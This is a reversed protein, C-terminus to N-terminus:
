NGKQTIINQLVTRLEEINYPKSVVGSFGYKRYNSMIPDTSYGSSVITKAEPDIKLLKTVAEKGGMGGPITLDMIVADFPRGSKKVKKYRRITEAGDCTFEVEHGLHELIMTAIKRVPEEDDMVLIKGKILDLEKDKNVTETELIKEPSAPLYIRFTTGVGVKSEVTIHGQHRNIISYSTALGLGSGKQKTTFYPDFIKSLHEEAIGIGQDEFTIRLHKGEKLPLADDPSITINELEINITGGEPMAQNANIVLNSVVQSIQGEDIEVPWLGAPISFKGKVNSGGLSFSAADKIIEAISATKKLPEGGKAFTLLQRTLDKARLSAKEAETLIGVVKEDKDALMKGLTINGMIATLINNFDHAIGGALIGISELKASKRLERELRSKETIDRFVLVVGIIKGMMDRIPSGSDAIIKESNDRSVLVTHNALGVIGGTELVKEVPNECPQRTKENIIRFVEFLPKGVAKEQSWGTLSEAVQNILIVKGKKDTAIVGDGISRLTIDLREKENYLAEEAQ